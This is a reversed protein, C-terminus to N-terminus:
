QDRQEKRRKRKDVCRIKRQHKQIEKRNNYQNFNVRQRCIFFNILCFLYNLRHISKKDLKEQTNANDNEVLNAFEQIGELDRKVNTLDDELKFKEAELLSIKKELESQTKVYDEKEKELKEKLENLEQLRKEDIESLKKSAENKVEDIMEEAQSERSNDYILKNRTAQELNEYKARLECYKMILGEEDLDVLSMRKRRMIDGRGSSGLGLGARGTNESDLGLKATESTSNSTSSEETDLMNKPKDESQKGELNYEENKIFSLVKKDKLYAYSLGAKIIQGRLNMIEEKLASSLYELEAPSLIVNKTVKKKIM